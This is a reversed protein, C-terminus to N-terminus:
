ASTHMSETLSSTRPLSIRRIACRSTPTPMRTDFKPMLSRNLTYGVIRGQIARGLPASYAKIQENEGKANVGRDSQSLIFQGQWAPDLGRSDKPQAVILRPLPKGGAGGLMDVVSGASIGAGSNAPAVSLSQGDTTTITLARTPNFPALATNQM